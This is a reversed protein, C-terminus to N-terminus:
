PLPINMNCCMRFSYSCVNVLRTKRDCDCDRDCDRDSLGPINTLLTDQLFISLWDSGEKLWCGLVTGVSPEPVVTVCEDNMFRFATPCDRDHSLFTGELGGLVSRTVVFIPKLAKFPIVM